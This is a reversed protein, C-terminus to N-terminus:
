FQKSLKLIRSFDGLCFYLDQEQIGM